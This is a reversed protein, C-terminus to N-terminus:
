TKRNEPPQLTDFFRDSRKRVSRSDPGGNEYTKAMWEQLWRFADDRSNLILEGEYVARALEIIGGEYDYKPERGGKHKPAEPMPDSKLDSLWVKLSQLDVDEIKRYPRAEGLAYPYSPNDPVYRGELSGTTRGEDIARVIIAGGRLIAARLLQEPREPSYDRAIVEVAEDWSIWRESM